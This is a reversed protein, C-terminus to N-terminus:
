VARPLPPSFRYDQPDMPFERGPLLNVQQTKHLSLQTDPSFVRISEIDDDFLDFRFPHKSGMPFLDLISGRVAFEGHEMVQPVCQYGALELRRRFQEPQLRDGVKFQFSRGHIYSQPPLKQMASAVTLLVFGRQISDCAQLTALRESVIDQYPSFQDYALTEWEPFVAVPLGLGASYFRIEQELASRSAANDCIVIVAQESHKAAEVLALGRASAYLGSWFRKQAAQTPLSDSDHIFCHATM